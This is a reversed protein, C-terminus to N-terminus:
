NTLAGILTKPPLEEEVERRLETAYRLVDRQEDALMSIRRQKEDGSIGKASWTQRIRQQIYRVDEDLKQIYDEQNLIPAYKERHIHYEDELDADKLQNMQRIATRLERSLYLWDQTGGVQYPNGFFRGVLINEGLSRDPREIGDAEMMVDSALETGYRMLSGFYGNLFHDIREAEIDRFDDAGVLMSLGAGFTMMAPNETEHLAKSLERALYSTRTPDSLYPIADKRWYSVIPRDTFSNHNNHLELVPRVLQPILNFNLTNGINRKMADFFTKANDKMYTPGTDTLGLALRALREPVTKFLFGVEFGVPINIGGDKDIGWMRWSTVWNLDRVHPSQNRKVFEDDDELAKYTAFGYLGVAGMMWLARHLFRRQRTARNWGTLSGTGARYLVDLGQVRANLFPVATTFFKWIQSKGRASFNIVEMAEFAAQAENPDGFRDLEATEKLVSKFVEVRGAMESATTVRDLARWTQWFPSTAVGTIQGARTRYAGRRLFNLRHRRASRYMAQGMDSAEGKYDYSGAATTMWLQNSARGGVGFTANSLDQSMGRISSVVPWARAGSTLWMSQTDRMLNAFLFGVSKTVMERLLNAPIGVVDLWPSSKIDEAFWSFTIPDAIDFWREVGNVRIAVSNMGKAEEPTPKQDFPRAMLLEGADRVARQSAVNTMSAQILAGTNKLLNDLPDGIRQHSSKITVRAGNGENLKKLQALRSQLDRNNIDLHESNYSEPDIQSGVTIFFTQKGGRLERQAPLMKAMNGFMENHLKTAGKGDVDLLTGLGSEFALEPKFVVSEGSQWLRYYPMYDMTSTFLDAMEQTFVGSKVAMDVITANLLQWNQWAEKIHPKEEGIEVARAIDEPTMTYEQNVDILRKSRMGAGFVFFDKWDNNEIVKQFVERLSMFPREGDEIGLRDLIDPNAYFDARLRDREEAYIEEMIPSVDREPNMTTGHFHGRSNMIPGKTGVHAFMVSSREAMRVAAWASYDATIEDYGKIEGGLILAARDKMKQKISIIDESSPGRKEQRGVLGKNMLPELKEMVKSVISDLVAPAIEEQLTGEIQILPIAGDIEFKAGEEKIITDVARLIRENTRMGTATDVFTVRWWGPKLGLGAKEGFTRLLKSGFSEDWGNTNFIKSFLEEGSKTNNRSRRMSLKDDLDKRLTLIPRDTNVDGVPADAFARRAVLSVLPNMPPTYAQESQMPPLGRRGGVWATTVSMVRARAGRMREEPTSPQFTDLQDMTIPTFGVTVPFPIDARQWRYAVNDGYGERQVEIGNLAYYDDLQDLTMNAYDRPTAQKVANLVDEVLQAVSEYGGWEQIKPLHKDAHRRGFGVNKNLSNAWENHGKTLVVITERLPGTQNGYVLTTDYVPSGKYIVPTHADQELPERFGGRDRRRSEFDGDDRRRRYVQELRSATSVLDRVFTSAAVGSGQEGLIGRTGYAQSSSRRRKAELETVGQLQKAYGGETLLSRYVDQTFLTLFSESAEMEEQLAGASEERLIQPIAREEGKKKRLEMLTRVLTWVTEQVEAPTWKMGTRKTLIQAARRSVANNAIYGTGKRGLKGFQDRDAKRYRGSFIDQSVLAYNAMHTDHTVESVVGFLNMLFSNVKPGSLDIYDGDKATLARILNAEHAGLLKKRGTASLYLERVEKKAKNADMGIFGDSRNWANWVQLSTLMNEAVSAQPSTAALIAAFRYGDNLGFIHIIAQASKEYWGRAVRGAYATSAMNGANPLAESIEMLSDVAGKVRGGILRDQESLTLNAVVGKFGPINNALENIGVFRGTTVVEKQIAVAQDPNSVTTGEGVRYVDFRDPDYVMYVVDPRGGNFGQFYDYNWGNPKYDDNWPLRAVARFGNRSYLWPLVTDFADLRRGGQDVALSILAASPSYTRQQGATISRDYATNKFVSVIDDGKLAFGTYRDESLFLRMQSYGAEDETSEVPYVYVAKGAMKQSRTARKISEQFIKASNTGSQLEIVAPASQNGEAYLAAFGDEPLYLFQGGMNNFAIRLRRDVRPDQDFESSSLGGQYGLGDARARQVATAGRAYGRVPAAEDQRNTESKANAIELDAKTGRPRRISLMDEIPRDSPPLMDPSVDAITQGEARKNLARQVRIKARRRNNEAPVPSPATATAQPEVIDQFIRDVSKLDNETLVDAVGRFFNFIRAFLNAPKGSVVKSPMHNWDRFAEAMAEEVQTAPKADPHLRKAEELYTEVPADVGLFKRDRVKKTVFNELIKIDAKSFVGYDMLMHFTEHDLHGALRNKLQTENLNIGEQALDLAILITRIGDLSTIKGEANGELKRVIKLAIEKPNIGKGKMTKRFREELFKAFKDAEKVWTLKAKATLRAGKLRRTQEDLTQKSATTRAARESPLVEGEVVIPIGAAGTQRLATTKSEIVDPKDEMQKRLKRISENAQQQGSKRVEGNKGMLDDYTEIVRQGVVRGDEDLAREVIGWAKKPAKNTPRTTSRLPIEEAAVQRRTNEPLASHFSPKAEWTVQDTRKIRGKQDRVPNGGATLAQRRTKRKTLDGRKEALALIKKVIDKSGARRMGIARHVEGLTIGGKSRASSILNNYQSGSFDPAAVPSPLQSNAEEQVPIAQLADMLRGRLEPRMGELTRRGGNMYLFNGWGAGTTAVNKSEAVKTIDEDSIGEPRALPVQLGLLRDVEQDNAKGVDIVEGLGVLTSGQVKLLGQSQRSNNVNELAEQGMETQSLQDASLFVAQEELTRATELTTATDERATAEIAERARRNAEAQDAYQTIEPVRADLERKVVEASTQDKFPGSVATGDSTEVRYVPTGVGTEITFDGGATMSRSSVVYPAVAGTRPDVNVALNIDPNSILENAYAEPEEAVFSTEPLPSFSPATFDPPPLAKRDESFDPLLLPQQRSQEEANSTAQVEELTRPLSELVDTIIDRSVGRSTLENSIAEANMGTSHMLNAQQLQEERYRQESPTAVAEITAPATSVVGGTVMGGILADITHSFRDIYSTVNQMDPPKDGWWGSDIGEAVTEQIIQQAWETLGEISAGQALRTGFKGILKKRFADYGEKNLRLLYPVALSDLSAMLVGPIVAYKAAEAESLGETEQLYEMTDGYNQFYSATGIGVRAGIAGATAMSTKSPKGKSGAVVLGVGSAFGVAGGLIPVGISGLGHGLQYSLYDTFEDFSDVDRWEAVNPQWNEGSDVARQIKRGTEKWSDSGFLHGHGIITAGFLRPNDEIGSKVLAKSFQNFENREAYETPTPLAKSDWGDFREPAMGPTMRGTRTAWQEETEDPLPQDSRASYYQGLESDAGESKHRLDFLADGSMASLSAEHEEDFSFPIESGWKGQEKVVGTDLASVPTKDVPSWANGDWVVRDGEPNEAIQAPVWATGSWFVYEDTKENYALAM